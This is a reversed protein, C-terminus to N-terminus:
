NININKSKSINFFKVIFTNNKCNKVYHVIVTFTNYHDYNIAIIYSM